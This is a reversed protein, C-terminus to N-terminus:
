EKFTTMPINADEGMALRDFEEFGKPLLGVISGGKTAGRVEEVMPRGYTEYACLGSSHAHMHGGCLGVGGEHEEGAHM